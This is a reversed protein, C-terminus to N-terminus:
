SYLPYKQDYLDTVSDAAIGAAIISFMIIIM